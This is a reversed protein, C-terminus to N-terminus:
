LALRSSIRNPIDDDDGAPYNERLLRLYEDADFTEGKERLADSLLLYARALWYNSDTGENVIESAIDRASDADGRMLLTEGLRVKSMVGISETKSKLLGSWLACARDTYGQGAYADARYYNIEDAGVVADTNGSLLRETVQIVVDYDGTAHASLMIGRRAAALSAPTTAKEELRQYSRLAEAYDKAESELDAKIRYALEAYDSDPYRSVLQRATGLALTKDGREYAYDCVYYLAQVENAGGPYRNLYNQLRTIDQSELYFNEASKFAADEIENVKLRPSGPVSELFAVLEDLRDRDAYIQRLDEAAVAAESSTAYDTIVARYATVADDTRGMNGLLLAKALLAKRGEASEAASRSIRDYIALAKENDGAAIHVDAQMSLARYAYISTPYEKILRNSEAMMASGQKTAGKIQVKRWLAYDGAAPSVAIAKDYYKEADNFRRMYHYADAIRTYCEAEMTKDVAPMKAVSEYLPIAKMYDGEIFNCHALQYDALQYNENNRPLDRRAALLQNLAEKIEDNKILCQAKLLRANAKLIKNDNSNDVPQDLARDLSIVADDYQGALMLSRGRAYLAYLLAERTVPTHHTVKELHRLAKDYDTDKMYATAITRRVNDTLSSYPYRKLFNECLRTLTGFPVKHGSECLSIYNYLALESINSDYTMDSAKQFALLASDGNGLQLQCLGMNYYSNQGMADDHRCSLRFMEVARSYHGEEMLCEGLAYCASGLPEHTTEMYKELNTKASYYDGLTYLSEGAIRYMEARDANSCPLSMAANAEELAKDVNKESSYIQALYVHANLQSNRDDTVGLLYHKATAFDGDAFAIYGLYYNARSSYDKDERLEQFINRAVDKDGTVFECYGQRLMTEQLQPVTLAKPAITKYESLAEAYNARSYYYDGMAARVRPADLSQPYRLIYDQLLELSEDDGSFLTAMAGLYLRRQQQQPTLQFTDLYALQDICGNFNGDSFMAEARALYGSADANNFDSPTTASGLFSCIAVCVITIIKNM